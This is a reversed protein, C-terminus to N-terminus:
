PFMIIKGCRREPSKMTAFAKEFEELRFKHTVVPMPDLRNNNLLSAMKYWTKYMLRGNIGIIRAGKFVIGEALDVTLQQSPIGFGTFRGGKALIKLGQRIAQGSGSMEMVVEAGVGATLSMVKEVLEPDDYKIIVDSGMKRSIDARFDYKVVHIIPGAGAARAVGVTFLGAPGCGFVVVSKGTVEECLTAYVANGLPEQISALELPLDPANKWACVAPLAVYEAFCGNTDVGLIRLNGCIHMM